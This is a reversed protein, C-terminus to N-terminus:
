CEFFTWTWCAPDEGKGHNKKIIGSNNLSNGKRSCQVRWSFLFYSFIIESGNFYVNKNLYCKTISWSNCFWSWANKNDWLPIGFPIIIIPFHRNIKLLCGTLIYKLIWIWLEHFFTTFLELKELPRRATEENENSLTCLNHTCLHM